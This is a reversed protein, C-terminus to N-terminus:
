PRHAGDLQQGCVREAVTSWESASQLRQTFQGLTELGLGQCRAPGLLGGVTRKCM